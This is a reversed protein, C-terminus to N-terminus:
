KKESKQEHIKVTIPETKLPCLDHIVTEDDILADDFNYIKKCYNDGSMEDYWNLPCEKCNKVEITM